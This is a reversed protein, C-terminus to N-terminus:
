KSRKVRRLHVSLRKFYSDSLEAPIFNRKVYRVRNNYYINLKRTDAKWYPVNMRAPARDSWQQLILFVLPRFLQEQFVQILFGRVRKNTHPLTSNNYAHFYFHRPHSNQSSGAISALPIEFIKGQMLQISNRYVLFIFYFSLISRYIVFSNLFKYESFKLFSKVYSLSPYKEWFPITTIQDFPDLIFYM